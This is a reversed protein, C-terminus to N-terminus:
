NLLKKQERDFNVRMGWVVKKDKLAFCFGELINNHTAQLTKTYNLKKSKNKYMMASASTSM